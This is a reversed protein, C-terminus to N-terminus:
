PTCRSASHANWRWCDRLSMVDKSWNLDSINALMGIALHTCIQLVEYNGSDTTIKTVACECVDYISSYSSNNREWDSVTLILTSNNYALIPVLLWCSETLWIHAKKFEKIVREVSISWTTWFIDIGMPPSGFSDYRNRRSFGTAARRWPFHVQAGSKAAVLMITLIVSINALVKAPYVKYDEHQWQPYVVRVCWHLWVKIYLM